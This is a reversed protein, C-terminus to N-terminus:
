LGNTLHTTDPIAHCLHVGLTSNPHSFGHAVVDSIFPHFYLYNHIGYRHSACMTESRVLRTTQTGGLRSTILLLSSLM